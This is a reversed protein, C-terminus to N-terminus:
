PVMNEKIYQVSVIVTEKIIEPTSELVKVGTPSQYFQIMNILDVKSYYKSYIPVLLEIIESVNFLKEYKERQDEPAQDTAQKINEKMSKRVGSVDIFNFILRVKDEEIGEYKTLDMPADGKEDEEIFDIETTYFKKQKNGTTIIVYHEGRNIIKGDFVRGDKLHVTETFGDSTFLAVAGFIIVIIILQIKMFVGM